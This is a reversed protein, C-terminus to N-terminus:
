RKGADRPKVQGRVFLFAQKGFQTPFCARHIGKSFPVEGLIRAFLFCLVNYILMKYFLASLKLHTKKNKKKKM